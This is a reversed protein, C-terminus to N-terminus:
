LYHSFVRSFWVRILTVHSIWTVTVLTENEEEKDDDWEDPIKKQMMRNLLFKQKAVASEAAKVFDVDDGEIFRWLTKMAKCHM